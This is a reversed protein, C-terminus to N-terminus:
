FTVNGFISESNIYIGYKKMGREDIEKDKIFSVIEYLM